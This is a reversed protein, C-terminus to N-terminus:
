PTWERKGVAGALAEAMGMPKRGRIPKIIVFLLAAGIAAEIIASVIGSRLHIGPQRLMWSAIFTGAIGVALMILLNEGTIHM